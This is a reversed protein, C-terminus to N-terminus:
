LSCFTLYFYPFGAEGTHSKNKAGGTHWTSHSNGKKGREKTSGEEEERKGEGKGEKRDREKKKLYHRVLYDMNVKFNSRPGPQGQVQLVGRGEQTNSNCARPVGLITRKLLM